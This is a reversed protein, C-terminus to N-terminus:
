RGTWVKVIAPLQARIKKHMQYLQISYGWNLPYKHIDGMVSTNAMLAPYHYSCMVAFIREMCCRYRRTKIEHIINFMPALKQLFAHDIVAMVGFCGMWQGKNEYVDLYPGGIKKLLETELEVDDFDKTKIYWIFRVNEITSFDIRKQIFASDHLVVAKSFWRHKLFYYYGLIEGCGPFESPIIQCNSLSKELVPNAYKPSSNDDIIVIPFDPYIRRICHYGELWYTSTIADRICRVIVFGIPRNLEFPKPKPEFRLRPHPRSRPPPHPHPEPNSRERHVTPKNAVYKMLRSPMSRSM